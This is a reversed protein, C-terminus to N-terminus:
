LVTTAASLFHSAPQPVSMCSAQLGRCVAIPPEDAPHLIPQISSHRTRVPFSNSCQRTLGPSAGLVRPALGPRVGAVPLKGMLTSVRLRGRFGGVLASVTRSVSNRSTCEWVPTQSCLYVPSASNDLKWYEDTLAQCVKGETFNQRCGTYGFTEMAGMNRSRNRCGSLCGGIRRSWTWIEAARRCDHPLNPVTPKQRLVPHWRGNPFSKSIFDFCRSNAETRTAAEASM